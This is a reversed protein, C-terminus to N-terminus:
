LQNTIVNRRPGLSSGNFAAVELYSLQTQHSCIMAITHRDPSLTAQSCDEDPRTLARGHGSGPPVSICFNNCRYAIEPQNTIWIQSVIKRDYYQYKTYILGGSPLPLPQMDGGTYDISTTWIRAQQISGGVPMAWISMPVDFGYKPKDYSFFLLKGNYSVRPYFAWHRASTDPNGAPATNNTVRKLVKGLRSLVYIDSSLVSRSVAMLSGGPYSGLQTWGASRTLAHFRGASLSYIAGSQVVFLTGPLNFAGPTPSAKTPEQPAAALNTQRSGLYMYSGVGSFLMLVVLAAALIFRSIVPLVSAGTASDPEVGAGRLGPRVRMRPYLALAARDAPHEQPRPQWRDPAPLRHAFTGHEDQDPGQSRCRPRARGGGLDWLSECASRAAGAAAAPLPRFRKAPRQPSVQRVAPCQRRDYAPTRGDGGGTFLRLSQRQRPRESLLRRAGPQQYRCRRGWDRRDRPRAGDARDM